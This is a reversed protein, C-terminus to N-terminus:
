YFNPYDVGYHRRKTRYHQRLTRRVRRLPDIEEPNELRPKLKRVSRMLADMYELKKVAPWGAYRQRWESGPTLWVAFTEAFDEDPHSQAYWDDLNVVYSRSYPHPRYFDPTDDTSPAGFIRRWKRRNQLQYAYFYAHATEHRILRM